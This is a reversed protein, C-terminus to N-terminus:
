QRKALQALYEALDDVDNTTLEFDPMPPHPAIIATRFYDTSKDDGSVVQHLSPAADSGSTTSQDDTVHCSTCWQRFLKEGRSSDAAASGAFTILSFLAVCFYGARM